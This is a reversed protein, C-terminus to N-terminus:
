LGTIRIVAPVVTLYNLVKQGTLILFEVASHYFCMYPWSSKKYHTSPRGTLWQSMSYNPVWGDSNDRRVIQQQEELMHLWYHASESHVDQQETQDEGVRQSPLEAGSGTSISTPLFVLRRDTSPIDLRFLVRVRVTRSVATAPLAAHGSESSHSSSIPKIAFWSSKLVDM